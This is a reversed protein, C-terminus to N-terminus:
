IVEAVGYNHFVENNQNDWILTVLNPYDIFPNRLEGGYYKALCSNLNVEFADPKDNASWNKYTDLFENKFYPFVLDFVKIGSYNPSTANQHTIQFYMYVRAIDGKFLDIPETGYGKQVKTGNLSTFSPSNVNRHPDNGRESNVHVDTPWIFFPDTRTFKEKGFWSQPVIHERNWGQGEASANKGIQSTLQYNYPDPKDPVESYFDIMTGDGDFYLDKFANTSSYITKLEGYLDNPKKNHFLKTFRNKQENYIAKFLEDGKKGEFSVYYNDNKNYKIKWNANKQFLKDEVSGTTPPTITGGGGGTTSKKLGKITKTLLLKKDEDRKLIVQITISGEAANRTLIAIEVKTKSDINSAKIDSVKIEHANINEKNEVDFTVNELDDELYTENKSDTNAKSKSATVVVAINSATVASCLGLIMLLAKKM